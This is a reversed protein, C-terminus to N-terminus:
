NPALDADSKQRYLAALKRFAGLEDDDINARDQKAFLYVYVWFAGGRAILISRYRSDALRKQLCRWRSRRGEGEGSRACSQGFRCRCHAGQPGRPCVLGDQIDSGDRCFTVGLAVFKLQSKFNVPQLSIADARNM